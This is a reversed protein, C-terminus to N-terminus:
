ILTEDNAFFLEFISYIVNAYKYITFSIHFYQSANVHYIEQYTRKM